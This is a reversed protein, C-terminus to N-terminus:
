KKTQQMDTEVEHLLSQKSYPKTTQFLDPEILGDNNACIMYIQYKRVILLVWVLVQGREQEHTPKNVQVSLYWSFM